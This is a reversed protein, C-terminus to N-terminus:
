WERRRGLFAWRCFGEWLTALEFLAVLAGLVTLPSLVWLCRIPVAVTTPSDWAMM